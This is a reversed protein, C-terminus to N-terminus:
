IEVKWGWGLLLPCNGNLCESIIRINISPSIFCWLAFTIGFHGSTSPSTKPLHRGALLSRLPFCSLIAILLPQVIATNILFIPFSLPHFSFFIVLFPLFFFSFIYIFNSHHIFNLRNSFTVLNQSFIVRRDPLSLDRKHICISFFILFFITM